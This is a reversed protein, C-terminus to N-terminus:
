TQPQAPDEGLTVSNGQIENFCKECFHYRNTVLSYKLSSCVCYLM